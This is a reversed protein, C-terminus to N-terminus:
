GSRNTRQWRVQLCALKETDGTHWAAQPPPIERTHGHHPWPCLPAQLKTAPPSSAPMAPTRHHHDSASSTSALHASCGQLLHLSACVAQRAPSPGASGTSQARVSGPTPFSAQLLVYGHSSAGMHVTRHVSGSGCLCSIYYVLLNAERHLVKVCKFKCSFRKPAMHVMILTQCDWYFQSHHNM